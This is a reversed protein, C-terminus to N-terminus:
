KTKKPWREKEQKRLYQSESHLPLKIYLQNYGKGLSALFLIFFFCHKTM